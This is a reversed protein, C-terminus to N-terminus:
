FYKFVGRITSFSVAFVKEGVTFPRQLLLFPCIMCFIAFKLNCINARMTTTIASAMPVCFNPSTTISGKSNANTIPPMMLKGRRCMKFLDCISLAALNMGIAMSTKIALIPRSIPGFRSIKSLEPQASMMCSNPWKKPVRIKPRGTARSKFIFRSAM